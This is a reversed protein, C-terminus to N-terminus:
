MIRDMREKSIEELKKNNLQKFKNKFAQGFGKEAELEKRKAENFLNTSLCAEKDELEEIKEEEEELYQKKKKKEAKLKQVNEAVVEDIQDLSDGIINIEEADKAEREKEIVIDQDMQTQMSGSQVAAQSDPGEKVECDHFDRISQMWMDREYDDSACVSVVVNSEPENDNTEDEKMKEKSDKLNGRIVQWCHTGKWKHPINNPKTYKMDFSKYMNKVNENEFLTLTLKNLVAFM